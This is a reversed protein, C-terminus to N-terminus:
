VIKNVMGQTPNQTSVPSPNGFQEPEKIFLLKLVDHMKIYENVILGICLFIM